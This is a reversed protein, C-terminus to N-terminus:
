YCEIFFSFLFAVGLKHGCGGQNYGHFSSTRQPPNESAVRSGGSGLLSENSVVSSGSSNLKSGWFSSNTSGSPAKVPSLRGLNDVPNEGDPPSPRLPTSGRSQLRAM